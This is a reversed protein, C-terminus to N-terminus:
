RESRRKAQDLKQLETQQTCFAAIETLCAADFVKDSDPFFCYRRWKTWWSIMGLLDNGNVSRVDWMKTIKYKPSDLVQEFKLFSKDAM